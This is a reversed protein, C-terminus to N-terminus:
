NLKYKHLMSQQHEVINSVEVVNDLMSDLQTKTKAGLNNIHNVNKQVNKTADEQQHTAISVQEIFSKINNVTSEIQSFTTIVVSNSEKASAMEKRTEVVSKKSRKAAFTLETMTQRISETQESTSSALKRVEDAVVAFGRGHNGARAAEIAANLALLNTAEAIGSIVDVMSSIQTVKSNLEAMVEENIELTKELIEIHQTNKKLVSIGNETHQVAVQSESFSDRTVLAIDNISTRLQGIATVMDALSDNQASLSVNSEEASANCNNTMTYLKDCNNTVLSISNHTSDIVQNLKRTIEKMEFPGTADAKQSLDHGTILTLQNKLNYLGKRVWVHLFLGCAAIFIALAVTISTILSIINSMTNNVVKKSSTILQEATTSIQNLVLIVSTSTETARALQKQQEEILEIRTLILPLLNNDDFGDKVMEISATLSIYESIEPYWEAFDSFALDIGSYRTKMTNIQTTAMEFNSQTMLELYKSELKTSLSVFRNTADSAEPNNQNLFSSIRNMEPGISSLAYRFSPTLEDIQHSLEIAQKKSNIISTTLTNLQSLHNQLQQQEEPLIAHNFQDATILLSAIEKKSSTVLAEIAMVNLNLEEISNAKIGQNLVKIQQLVNQTLSANGMALPLAHDSLKNFEEGIRNVGQKNLLFSSTLLILIAIFVIVITQILSLSFRFKTSNNM